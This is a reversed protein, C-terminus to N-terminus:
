TNQLNHILLVPTRRPARKRIFLKKNQKVHISNDHGQSHVNIISM